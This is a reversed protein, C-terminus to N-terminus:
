AVKQCAITPRLRLMVSDGVGATLGADILNPTPFRQGPRAAATLGKHGRGWRELACASARLGYRSARLLERRCKNVPLLAIRFDERVRGQDIGRGGDRKGLAGLRQRAAGTSGASTLARPRRWHASLGRLMVHCPLMLCRRIKDATSGNRSPTRRRRAGVKRDNRSKHGGM